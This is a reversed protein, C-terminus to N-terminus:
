FSMQIVRDRDMLDKHINIKLDPFLSLVINSLPVTQSPDIEMFCTVRCAPRSIYNKLQQLLERYLALGNEQAVLAIKPEQQITPEENFQGETLYPLNATLLVGGGLTKLTNSQLLPDLLNGQFFHIDVNHECANKKAMRLAQRSIDTAYIKKLLSNKAIAIPICGSGTGVDVCATDFNVDTSILDCERTRLWDLALQVLLETEPRPILTQKNVFFDLSFFEKHGTLYALPAGCKRNKLLKKFRYYQLKSLKFEPHAMIFERPRGLVHALLLEADRADVGTSTLAVSITM